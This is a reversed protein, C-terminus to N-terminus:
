DGEIDPVQVATAPVSLEPVDKPFNLGPVKYRSAPIQMARADKVDRVRITQGTPSDTADTIIESDRKIQFQKVSLGSYGAIFGLVLGFVVPEIKIGLLTAVMYFITILLAMAGGIVTNFATSALKTLWDMKDTNATASQKGYGGGFLSGVAASM